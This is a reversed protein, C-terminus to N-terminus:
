TPQEEDDDTTKRQAREDLSRTFGAIAIAPVADEHEWTKIEGARGDITRPVTFRRPRWYANM